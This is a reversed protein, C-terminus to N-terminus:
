RKATTFLATIFVHIFIQKFGEKLNKQTYIWFHFPSMTLEIKLNKLFSWVTEWLPQMM